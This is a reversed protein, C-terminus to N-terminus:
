CTTPASGAPPPSRMAPTTRSSSWVMTQVAPCRRTCRGALYGAPLIQARGARLIQDLLRNRRHRRSPSVAPGHMRGRLSVAQAHMLARLSMPGLTRRDSCCTLLSSRQRRRKRRRSRQLRRCVRSALITRAHSACEAASAAASCGLTRLAALGGSACSSVCGHM